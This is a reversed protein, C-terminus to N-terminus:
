IKVEELKQAVTEAQDVRSSGAIPQDSRSIDWGRTHPDYSLLVDVTIDAYM